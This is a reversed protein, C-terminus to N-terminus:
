PDEFFGAMRWLQVFGRWTGSVALRGDRSFSLGCAPAPLMFRHVELGSELEILRVENRHAAGILLRKRNPSLALGRIDSLGPGVDIKSVEKGRQLDWVRATQDVSYSLAQKGDPTFSVLCGGAHGEFKKM